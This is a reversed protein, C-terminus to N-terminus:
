QRKYSENWQGSHDQLPVLSSKTSVPSFLGHTMGQAACLTIHRRDRSVQARTVELFEQAEQLAVVSAARAEVALKAAEESSKIAREAEKRAAVASTYAAAAAVRQASAQRLAKNM